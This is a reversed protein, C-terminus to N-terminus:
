HYVFDNPDLCYLETIEKVINPFYFEYIPRIYQSFVFENNNNKNVIYIYDSKKENKFIRENYPEDIGTAYIYYFRMGDGIADNSDDDNYEEVIPKVISKKDSHYVSNRVYEAFRATDRNEIEEKFIRCVMEIIAEGYGTLCGSFVDYSKLLIKKQIPIVEKRVLSMGKTYFKKNVNGNEYKEGMYKKKSKLIFHKIYGEYEM